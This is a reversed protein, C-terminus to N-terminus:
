QTPWQQACRFCASVYIESRFESSVYRYLVRTFVVVPQGTPLCHFSVARRAGKASFQRGALIAGPRLAPLEQLPSGDDAVLVPVVAFM